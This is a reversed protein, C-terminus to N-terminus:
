LYWNDLVLSVVLRLRHQSCCNLGASVTRCVETADEAIQFLVTADPPTQSSSALRGRGPQAEQLRSGISPTVICLASLLTGLIETRIQEHDDSSLLGRLMYCMRFFPLGESTAHLGGPCMDTISLSFVLSM